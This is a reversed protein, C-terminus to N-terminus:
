KAMMAETTFASHAGLGTGSSGALMASSGQGHALMWATDAQNM